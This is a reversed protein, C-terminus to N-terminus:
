ATTKEEIQEVAVTTNASEKRRKKFFKLFGSGIGVFALAIIKWFKLLVAFFGVKALIKGAVLGGITWAAVQDVDPNFSSYAFDKDFEICNIIPKINQKVEQLESITAIASLNFIGKRGLIRLDYNLTTDASEGFILSKAWHLVKKDKDYFPTSAWGILSVPAYGNETRYTNAEDIDKRMDKLLDDYNIDDADEDKVYGMDEYSITYAWSTNGLVGRGTPVLMGLVTSDLPNGWLDSLVYMSQKSDLYEFGAPVNLTANGSGLKISGTQYVLSKELNNRIIETSDVEQAAIPFLFMCVFVGTFLSKLM